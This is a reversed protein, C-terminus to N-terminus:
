AITEIAGARTAHMGREERSGEAAASERPEPEMAYLAGERMEIRRWQSGYRLRGQLEAERQLLVAYRSNSSRALQAPAGDEVITGGEM